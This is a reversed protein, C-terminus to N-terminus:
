VHLTLESMEVVGWALVEKYVRLGGFLFSCFYPGLFHCHRASFTGWLCGAFLIFTRLVGRESGHRM